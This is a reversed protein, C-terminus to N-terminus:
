PLNNKQTLSATFEGTAVYLGDDVETGAPIVSAVLTRANTDTGKVEIEDDRYNLTTAIKDKDGTGTASNLKTLTLVHTDEVFDPAIAKFRVIYNKDASENKGSADASFAKGDTRKLIVTKDVQSKTLVGKLKTGHDFRLNDIISGTEDVLCLEPGEPLVNVRVEFPVGASAPISDTAGVASQGPNTFGAPTAGFSLASVVAFLGFLKLKKM